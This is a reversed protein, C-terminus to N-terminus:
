QGRTMFGLSRSSCLSFNSLRNLSCIYGIKHRIHFPVFFIMASDIANATTKQTAQDSVRINYPEEAGIILLTTTKQFAKKDDVGTRRTPSLVIKTTRKRANVYRRTRAKLQFLIQASFRHFFIHSIVQFVMKSTGRQFIEQLM